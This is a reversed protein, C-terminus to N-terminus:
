TDLGIGLAFVKTMQKINRSNGCVVHIANKALMGRGIPIHLKKTM